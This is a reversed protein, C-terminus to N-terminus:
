ARIVIADPQHQITIKGPSGGHEDFVLLENIQGPLIWPEPLYLTTDSGVTKRGGDSIFYKGVHIDNLYVQGKAMGSLELMAPVETEDPTFRCRWWTPGSPGSSGRTIATKGMPEFSTVHPREWKAFSWDCSETINTMGEDFTVGKALEAYAQELSMDNPISEPLLAIQITNKGNGLVENDLKIRELGSGTVFHIPEENMLVLGRGVRASITLYIPSKRRHSFQWTLREPAVLDGDGVDWLPSRFRLPELPKGMEITHKGPKFSKLEYMHGFLGKREGIADGAGARGMNEALVIIINEGKDLPLTLPGLTAFPGVGWVGIPKGNVFVHLRDASEPMSVKQKKAASSKLVIRYWGYGEPTGANSLQTPGDIAAFRPSTGTVYEDASSAAWENM